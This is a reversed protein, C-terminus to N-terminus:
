IQEELSQRAADATAANIARGRLAMTTNVRSGRKQRPKESAVPCEDTKGWSELAIASTQRRSLFSHPATTNGISHILMVLHAKRARSNLNYRPHTIPWIVRFPAPAPRVLRRLVFYLSMVLFAVVHKLFWPPYFPLPASPGSFPHCSPRCHIPHLHLTLLDVERSGSNWMYVFDELGNEVFRMDLTGTLDISVPWTSSKEAKGSTGATTVTTDLWALVWTGRDKLIAKTM